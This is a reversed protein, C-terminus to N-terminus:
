QASAISVDDLLSKSPVVGVARASPGLHYSFREPLKGNINSKMDGGKPDWSAIDEHVLLLDSSGILKKTSKLLSLQTHEEYFSDDYIFTMDPLEITNDEDDRTVYDYLLWISLPSTSINLLCVYRTRRKPGNGSGEAFWGLPM